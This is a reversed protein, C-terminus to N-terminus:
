CVFGLGSLSNRRVIQSSITFALIYVVCLWPIRSKESFALWVLVGFVGGFDGKYTCIIYKGWFSM